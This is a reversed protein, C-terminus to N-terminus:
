VMFFVWFKLYERRILLLRRGLQFISSKPIPDLVSHTALGLLFSRNQLQKQELHGRGRQYAFVFDITARSKAQTTNKELASIIKKEM